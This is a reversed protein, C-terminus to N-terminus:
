PQPNREQLMQEAEAATLYVIKGDRWIIVPTATAKAREVVDIAVQKFAANAKEALTADCNPQPIM